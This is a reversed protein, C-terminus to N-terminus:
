VQGRDRQGTRVSADMSAHALHPVTYDASVKSAATKFGAGVDGENRVAKGPTNVTAVLEKMYADSEFSGHAGRSWEVKLAKRGQLAAWTSNAVVAIGGLASFAPAGKWAPIQLVKEVGAVKLAAKADFSDITGGLVPVRWVVAHRMGDLTADLGFVAKGTLIDTQDYIGVNEKGVYRREEPTHFDARTPKRVPLERATPVLEGFGIKKGGPGHVFHDRAKCQDAAVKWTKAAAQELMLRATAGAARMTDYFRRVSRSGDTNQSGFRADGTAQELTIKSWEAGLEDALVMPLTTRIGTGMESRHAVITIAGSTEIAVWLSTRLPADSDQALVRFAEGIPAGIVLAGAGVLGKLFSRRAINTENISM